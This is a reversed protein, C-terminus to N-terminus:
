PCESPTFDIIEKLMNGYDWGARWMDIANAKGQMALAYRASNAILETADWGFGAASLYLGVGFNGADTYAEYFFNKYSKGGGENRQFDFIGWNYEDILFGVAGYPMHDIPTIPNSVDVIQNARNFISLVNFGPPAFFSVIGYEFRIADNPVGFIKMLGDAFVRGRLGIINRPRAGLSDISTLPDQSVYGYLNLGGAEGIPDPSIWRATIPDYLRTPSIAFGTPGHNLHGTFGLESEVAGNGTVLNVSRKGWLDYDYRAKVVGTNDVMERVSGLHDRPYYYSAFTGANAGTGSIQEGQPYFRRIVDNSGDREEVLTLGNWAFHKESTVTDGDKEVISSRRGLPDYGFETRKQTGTYNIALLRNAADWEYTRAGDNILNGNLDYRWGNSTGGPVTVTYRNTSSVLPDTGAPANPNSGTAVITVTNLGPALPVAADFHGYRDMTATVNEAPNASTGATVVAPKNVTGSFHTLGGGSRGTLQNLLNYTSTTTASKVQETTRNGSLDYGWSFSKLLTPAPTMQGASGSYLAAGTMQDADDHAPVYYQPNGTTSDAPLLPGNNAQTWSAINGAFDYAYDFQSLVNGSPDFNAIEKLRNDGLNDFYSLQVTGSAM